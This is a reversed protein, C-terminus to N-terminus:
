MGAFNWRSMIGSPGRLTILREPFERTTAFYAAYGISPHRALALLRDVASGTANWLEVRYILDKYPDRRDIPADNPPNNDRGSGCAFLYRAAKLRRVSTQQM